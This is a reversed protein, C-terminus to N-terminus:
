LYKSRREQSGKFSLSSRVVLDARISKGLRTVVKGDQPELNELVDDLVLYVGRAEVGQTVKRRWRDPYTGNMLLPQGHIITVNKNPWQDKIEGAYEVGVAGGGVLVIDKAKEFRTRWSRISELTEQKDDSLNLPGEWTSGPALILVSYELREGNDLMVFRGKGTDSDEISAVRGLVVKRNGTNYKKEPLPMLVQDELHGESTVVTRIMAILHIFYPTPTVLILNTSSTAPLKADIANFATIGASGGGVIIINQTTSPSM